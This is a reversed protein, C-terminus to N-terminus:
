VSAKALADKALARVYDREGNSGLDFAYGRYPMHWGEIMLLAQRMHTVQDTLRCILERQRRIIETSRDEESDSM